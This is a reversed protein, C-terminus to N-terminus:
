MEGDRDTLQEMTGTLSVAGYGWRPDPYDYGSTRVAGREFLAKCIATNILPINQRVVAWELFQTLVGATMAAAYSSGSREGYVTPIRIGPAAFDPKVDGTVSYGRGNEAAIGLYGTQEGYAAITFVQRAYGPDTITTQASPRLFYLPQTEFQEMPLWIHIKQFQHTEETESDTKVTSASREEESIFTWIGASPRIFRVNAVQMGSGPESSVLDVQIKTQDYLFKLDYETGNRVFAARSPVGSMWESWEGGPTRIQLKYTTQASGWLQAVFGDVSEGVFLEAQEKLYGEFHRSTNGENGAPIVILRNRKQGVYSLYRSLIGTGEHDGLSTGIGLLIVMPRKAEIAQKELFSVAEMVDSEQFCIVDESIEYYARLNNKAPKCKVVFLQANYACGQYETGEKIKSGVAVGALATGHGATDKQPVIHDPNESNLAEMIQEQGYFSGYVFGDPPTGSQDTQDWIGLIRSNGAEDMFIPLRYDIGTDVIGFLVGLGTLSLPPNACPLSGIEMLHSRDFVVGQEGVPDEWECLGYVKAIMGYGFTGVRIPFAKEAKLSLVGFGADVPLYCFDDQEGQDSSPLVYDTVFEVYEESLLATKCDPM